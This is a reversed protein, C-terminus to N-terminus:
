KIVVWFWHMMYGRFLCTSGYFAFSAWIGHGNECWWHGESFYYKTLPVCVSSCMCCESGDRCSSDRSLTIIFFELIYFREEEVEEVDEGGCWSCAMCTCMFSSPPTFPCLFCWMLKCGPRSHYMVVFEQYCADYPAATVTACWETNTVAASVHSTLRITDPKCLKAAAVAAACVCFLHFFESSFWGLNTSQYALLGLPIQLDQRSTKRKRKEEDGDGHMTNTISTMKDSITSMCLRTKIHMLWWKCQSLNISEKGM